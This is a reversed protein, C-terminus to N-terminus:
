TPRRSRRRTPPALVPAASAGGSPRVSTFRAVIAAVPRRPSPIFLLVVLAVGRAIASAFFVEGYDLVGERLLLGGVVAGAVQTLGSAASAIAYFEVTGGEPADSMLLQLVCLEYGAWAVGGVLQAVSLTVVDESAFWFLPVSAILAGSVALMPRAGWRTAALRWLPFAVAKAAISLSTLMAFEGLDLDLEELMYPTFFPVALQAGALLFAAFVAVRWRGQALVEVLRSRERAPPEGFSSKRSLVGASSIRAVLSVLHLAGFGLLVTGRARAEDLLFGAGLFVALLVAHYLWLRRAFFRGRVRAPVLRAMWSSWAPAHSAASAWYVVKAALFLPLSSTGTWAIAFFALHTLAQVVVGAIVARKEGGLARVLWPSALQSLAGVALPVTVLLSLAIDRHGLEVALAGLYSETAGIMVAHLLGDIVSLRLSRRREEVRTM